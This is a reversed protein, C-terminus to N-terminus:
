SPRRGRRLRELLATFDPPLPAEFRLTRGDVPHRFGLRYAHLAQREFQITRLMDPGFVYRREGVLTHGRLRAQIRIQNRRGTRLRIEVLSADRFRELVRYDSIADSAQPDRPHTEKQILAKRDWVLHDRWTGQPPDPHGYVVAWYVREPERRKFQEKLRAQAAAHKAFVVLGSTDRDIRHVVLPRWKGRSRYRDRIQDYLSPADAKRALPVALMGPPKNVVLLAEDEFVIDLEGVRGTRYRAKASGPRDIWLRIRDGAAVAVGVDGPTAERDNLFIKGREIADVARARSGARGARSLFKDLRVGSEEPAVTWEIEAV